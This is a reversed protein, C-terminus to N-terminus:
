RVLEAEHHPIFLGGGGIAHLISIAPELAARWKRKDIDEGDTHLQAEIVGDNLEILTHMDM